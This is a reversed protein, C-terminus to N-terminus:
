FPEYIEIDLNIQSIYKEILPKVEKEWNLKGEGCGLGPIAISKIWMKEYNKLLYDLGLEIDVLSSYQKWHYKTPFCLINKYTEDFLYLHGIQIKHEICMKKYTNFMTPYKEKFAKALGKGMVGVCNIPNTLTKCKSDFINGNQIYTIM